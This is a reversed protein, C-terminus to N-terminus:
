DHSLSVFKGEPVAFVTNLQIKPISAAPSTILISAVFIAVTVTELVAGVDGTTPCCHNSVETDGDSSLTYL